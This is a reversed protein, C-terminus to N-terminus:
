LPMRQIQSHALLGRARGKVLVQEQEQALAREQVPVQAWV